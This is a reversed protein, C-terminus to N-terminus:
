ARRRAIRPLAIAIALSLFGLMVLLPLNSATHPMRAAAMESPKPAPPKVVQALQVERGSGSVAKVPAAKLEASKPQAALKHALVPRNNAQAIEFARAGPYVFEFGYNDGPYFWSEIAEPSDKPREEFRIITKGSPNMRYDPIALITAFIKTEDKNFIQVIDRDSQSDMLKFVYTGAPLVVDPVEVPENFTMITEKNWEDARSAPVFIIGALLLCSLVMVLKHFM